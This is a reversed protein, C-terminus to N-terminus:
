SKRKKSKKSKKPTPSPAAEVVEAAPESKAAMEPLSTFWDKRQPFQALFQRAVEDTLNANTYVKAGVHLVVGNVLRAKATYTDMNRKYKQITAYIEALADELVNKCKCKRLQKRCIELYLRAIREKVVALSQGTDALGRLETFEAQAEELTIM